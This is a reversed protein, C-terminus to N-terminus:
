QIVQLVERAKEKEGQNWYAASTNELGDRGRISGLKYAALFAEFAPELRKQKFFILGRELQLNADKNGTSIANELTLLALFDSDSEQYIRVIRFVMDTRNPALALGEEYSRIAKKKQNSQEYLHGLYFYVQADIEPSLLIAEKLVDQANDYDRIIAYAEALAFYVDTQDPDLKLSADFSKMAETVGGARLCAEGLWKWAYGNDPDLEAARKYCVIANGYSELTFFIDGLILWPRDFQPAEEISRKYAVIAMHYIEKQAFCNGLNFWAFPLNQGAKIAKRYLKSASGYKGKEYFKNGELVWDKVVPMPPTPPNPEKAPLLSIASFLFPLVVFLIALRHSSSYFM